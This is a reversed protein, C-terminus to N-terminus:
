REPAEAAGQGQPILETRRGRHEAGLGERAQADAADRSCGLRRVEAFTGGQDEPQRRCGQGEHRAGAQEWWDPWLM